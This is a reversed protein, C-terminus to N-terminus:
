ILGFITAALILQCVVGGMFSLGRLTPIGLTYVIYHTLRCFFYGMAAFVTLETSVHILHLVIVLPAFVALNEIANYHAMKARAAWPAKHPDTIQRSKLANFIGLQIIMRFLYPLFMLATMTATATLWFLEPTLENM